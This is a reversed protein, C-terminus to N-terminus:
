QRSWRASRGASSVKGASLGRGATGVCDPPVTATWQSGSSCLLSSSSARDAPQVSNMTSCAPNAASSVRIPAPVSMGKPVGTAPRDSLASSSMTPNKTLVSTSRVSVAPSGPNASSSRRTRSVSRSANAWWSTGKSRITSTSRGSRDSDWFGRNWTMIWTCGASVVVGSKAPSSASGAGTLQSTAM